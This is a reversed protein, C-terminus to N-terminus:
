AHHTLRLCCPDSVASLGTGSVIKWAARLCCKSRCSSITPCSCLTPSKRTSGLLLVDRFRVACSLLGVVLSHKFFCCIYIYIDIERERERYIYIYIYMARCRGLLLLARPEPAADRLGREPGELGRLMHPSTIIMIMVLIVIIVIIIIM